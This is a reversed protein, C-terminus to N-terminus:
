APAASSTPVAASRPPAPRADSKTGAESWGTMAPRTGSSMVSPRGSAPGPRPRGPRPPPSPRAGLGVVREDDPGPQPRTARRRPEDAQDQAASRRAAPRADIGPASSRARPRAAAPPPRTPPGADQRRVRALERPEVPALSPAVVLSRAAARGRGRRAPALDDHELTGPRDDGCRRAARPPRREREREERGAPVPSTRAPRMPASSAWPTAGDLRSGEADVEVPEGALRQRRRSPSAPGARTRGARGLQRPRARREGAHPRRRRGGRVGHATPLARRRRPAQSSTSRSAM